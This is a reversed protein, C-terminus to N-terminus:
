FKRLMNQNIPKLQVQSNSKTFEQTRGSIPPRFINNEIKTSNQSQKLQQSKQTTQPTRIRFQNTSQNPSLLQQQQNITKQPVQPTKQLSISQRQFSTKSQQANMQQLQVKPQQSEDNQQFVRGYKPNANNQPQQNTQQVKQQQRYNQQPLQQQQLQLIPQQTAQPNQKKEQITKPKNVVNQCIAIHKDAKSPDFKRQCYPCQIYNNNSSVPPPGLQRIDGGEEQIKKLQRNYKLTNIFEQHSQRWGTQPAKQVEVKHEKKEFYQKGKCVKQHKKIRDQAFRRDCKDCTILDIGDQQDEQDEDFDHNDNQQQKQSQSQQKPQQKQQEIANSNNDKKKFNEFVSSMYITQLAQSPNPLQVLDDYIQPKTGQNKCNQVHQKLDQISNCDQFCKYCKLSKDDYNVQTKSFSQQKQIQNTQQKQKQQPNESNQIQQQKQLQEQKQNQFGNTQTQTAGKIDKCNSEHKEVRSPLFKRGCKKCPVLEVQGGEDVSDLAKFPNEATCAKIHHELAEPKFTRGCNKCAVLAEKNYKNFAGNNYAMIDEMTIEEKNLLDWLGRPTTPPNRREGKPKKMEQVMFMEKCQPIHIGLSKSGYERGCIYCVLTKPRSPVKQEGSYGNSNSKGQQTGGNDRNMQQQVEKPNQVFGPLPKFPKDPKCIKIHIPYSERNFTRGCYACKELSQEKYANFAQDNYSEADYNGGGGLAKPPQPLPRRQNKPKKAEEMLFKEQCTKLHIELSKSGYERGCIYCILTKPRVVPNYNQNNLGQM